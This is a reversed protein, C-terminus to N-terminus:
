GETGGGTVSEVFDPNETLWQDVADANSEGGMENFMINELSALQEDTMTFNGIWEAVDPFREEFDGTGYTHIDDPEGLAGEPDELDRIPFADYAWHPRWLTVVVNEGADVAAQLDSLMAPTSSVIFEMGELGYTPIVADQTIRTLGAGAEIGVLRNGFQDANEALEALSTIPADENVAITLPANEYWVGLDVIDDGYTELYDGHTNPLWTDFNVDYDGEALGTFVVGAEAIQQDVDYGEDTLIRTWLESVAIGEEWGSHVGITLASETATTGNGGTADDTATGADTATDGGCAALTRALAAAAGITVTHKRRM